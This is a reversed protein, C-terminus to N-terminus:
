HVFTLYGGSVLRWTLSCNFQSGTMGKESKKRIMEIDKTGHWKGGKQYFTINHIALQLFISKEYNFSRDLLVQIWNQLRTVRVCRFFQKVKTRAKMYYDM